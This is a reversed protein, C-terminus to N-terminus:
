RIQPGNRASDCISADYKRSIDAKKHKGSGVVGKWACMEMLNGRQTCM